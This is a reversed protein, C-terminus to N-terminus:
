GKQVTAGATSLLPVVCKCYNGAVDRWVQTHWNLHLHKANRVLQSGQAPTAVELM